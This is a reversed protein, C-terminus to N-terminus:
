LPKILDNIVYSALYLGGVAPVFMMSGLTSGSKTEERSFVVPINLPLNAEKLTHRLKKALPDNFTKNLKTIELLEPKLKKATGLCTIIKLNNKTAYEILAVKVKIDDCADIIYDYKENIYQSFNTENIFISYSKINLKPNINLALKKAEEVKSSGINKINSIVQRNLNSAEIKDGDIITLNTIGSRVLAELAIGGVGGLGVILIHAKKIKELNNSGILSIIREEM